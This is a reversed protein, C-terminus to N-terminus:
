GGISNSPETTGDMAKLLHTNALEINAVLTPLTELKSSRSLSQEPAGPLTPTDARGSTGVKGGVFPNGGVRWLEDIVTRSIEGPAVM